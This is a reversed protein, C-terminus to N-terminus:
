QPVKTSRMLARWGSNVANPFRRENEFLVAFLAEGPLLAGPQAVNANDRKHAAIAEDIDNEILHQWGRAARSDLLLAAAMEMESERERGVLKLAYAHRARLFVSRPYVRVGEALTREAAGAEGANAEAGALYAYCPSTHFGRELAFRLHPMAERERKSFYLRLGYNFHAAPDLPNLALALRFLRESRAADESAQAAGLATASGAQLGMASLVLLAAALGFAEVRVLRYATRGPARPEDSAGAGEGAEHRAGPRSLRAVLAAAFFFVLGSGFWRFSVSSAGSSVTFAALSAFAGPVLPCTSRRIARWAAWVLTACFSVFLLLGVAGLESLIQFYENHAGTSRFGENVGVLPSGANKEAFSARAAPFASNYSGAGVGTLPRTRWMEVAAGWYLFRAYTNPETASTAKIRETITNHVSKAFPSSLNLLLLCSAFAAALALARGFGRPRFVPRLTMCLALLLLGTAVGFFPAREAIQLMSLWGLTAAAGFLLAARGRRVKLALAALLPICVAVPEGLGNQRILSNASGYHGVVNAAAIIIVVVALVALSSRLLRPSGAARYMSVFFLLYTAWSLAYHVAAFLDSAWLASAAAWAAFAALTSVLALERARFSAPSFSFPTHRRGAGSTEPGRARRLLLAFSLSLLLAVVSEQRWTLGGNVPLPLWPAFPALLALPWLVAAVGAPEKYLTHALRSM